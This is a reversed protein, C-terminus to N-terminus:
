RHGLVCARPQQPAGPPVPPAPPCLTRSKRFHVAPSALPTPGVGLYIARHGIPNPVLLLQGGGQAPAAWPGAPHPLRLWASHQPRGPALSSTRTADQGMEGDGWRASVGKRAEAPQVPGPRQVGSAWTGRHLHRHWDTHPPVPGVAQGGSVGTRSTNQLLSAMARPGRTSPDPLSVPLGWLPM